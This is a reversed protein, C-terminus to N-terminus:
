FFTTPELFFSKLLSFKNRLFRSSSRRWKENRDESSGGSVSINRDEVLVRRRERAPVHEPQPEDQPGAPFLERRIVGKSLPHLM